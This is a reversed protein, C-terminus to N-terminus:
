AAPKSTSATAAEASAPGGAVFVSLELTLTAQSGNNALNANTILVARPQGQQLQDLFRGLQGPGGQTNLSVPLVYISTGAAVTRTPAGISVAAVTVGARDGATQMGRLLESASATTPLAARESGLQERYKPLDENQKRLENLRRQLVVVKRDAAAAEDDLEGTQRNQPSILFFWGLVLLLVASLVGGVAWLRTRTFVESM